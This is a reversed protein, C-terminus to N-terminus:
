EGLFFVALEKESPVRWKDWKVKNSCVEKYLSLAWPYKAFFEVGDERHAIMTSARMAALVRENVEENISYIVSFGELAARMFNAERLSIYARVRSGGCSGELVLFSTGLALAEDLFGYLAHLESSIELLASDLEYIGVM